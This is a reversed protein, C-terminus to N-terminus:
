AATPSGASNKPGGDSRRMLQPWRWITAVPAAVVLALLLLLTWPMSWTGASRKVIAVDAGFDDGPRTALPRLEVEVSSRITPAVGRVVATSTHSDGPLLEPMPDLFVRKGDLGLPGSARVAQQAGMRVNGINTVTWTALVEGKGFPNATGRYDVDLKSVSLAPRLPGDVRVQVLNGLRQEVKVPEGGSAPSTLASVIGGTQDGSEANEPVTLTFPVDALEGPALDVSTRELKIWTGVRRPPEGSPLLDLAGTDTARVDSAYVELRLPNRGFNRIRVSDEITQNPQLSYTFNSREAQGEVPTPRVSWVVVPRTETPPTPVAASAPAALFGVALVAACLRRIRTRRTRRDPRSPLTRM